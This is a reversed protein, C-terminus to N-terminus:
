IDEPKCVINQTRLGVVGGGGIVYKWTTNQINQSIICLYHLNTKKMYRYSEAQPTVIPHVSVTICLFGLKSCLMRGIPLDCASM